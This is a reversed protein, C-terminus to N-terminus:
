IISNLNRAPTLTAPLPVQPHARGVRPDPKCTPSDPTSSPPHHSRLNLACTVGTNDIHLTGTADPENEVMM